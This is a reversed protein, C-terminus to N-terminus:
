KFIINAFTETNHFGKEESGVPSFAGFHPVPTDDGCKYFNGRLAMPKVKFEKGTIDSLLKESVFLEVGWANEGNETLSFPTVKPAVGSLEKLKKRELGRGAGYESLIVGKSNMEFNAYPAAAGQTPCLFFELCSDRYVPDDRNEYVAAIDKEFSWLRAYIGKDKVACLQAYSRPRVFNEKEWHFNNIPAVSVEAWCPESPFIVAEYTNM